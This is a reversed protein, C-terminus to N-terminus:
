FEITMSIKLNTASHGMFHRGKFTKAFNRLLGRKIASVTLPVNEPRFCNRTVLLRQFIM